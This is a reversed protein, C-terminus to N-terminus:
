HVKATTTATTAVPAAPKSAAVPAVVAPTVPAPRAEIPIVKDGELVFSAAGLLVRTGAPPGQLLEVYGGGHRGVRVPLKKVVNNDGVLMVTVGDADYRLAAEPVAIASAGAQGFLARGFGGPRLESNVPLQVRVQALKTQPDVSPGILRVVGAFTHGSPLTVQVPQGVRINSMEGEALQAELEILGDRAIRFLPNAGGAGSLDGPRVNRELVIGGVPARVIMKTQRTRLERLAAAQANSQARGSQAQFRRQDIQEQALAGTGDLGSVRAAQSEAQKAQVDAQAALATQQDIQARLLTDDLEILPQNATVHSGIDALVRAVRFGTVEATVAAEERSILVGSSAIGGALIRPEVQAVTVQRAPATAGAKAPADTKADPAAKKGGCGSLAGAILIVAGLARIKNNM